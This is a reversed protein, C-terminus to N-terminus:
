RGALYPFEEQAVPTVPVSSVTPIPQDNPTNLDEISLPKPVTVDDNLHGYLSRQTAVELSEPQTNLGHTLQTHQPTHIPNNQSGQTLAKLLGGRQSLPRNNESTKLPPTVTTTRSDNFQQILRPDAHQQGSTYQGNKYQPARPPLGNQTRIITQGTPYSAHQRQTDLNHRYAVPKVRKQEPIAERVVQRKPHKSLSSLQEAISQAQTTPRPATPKQQVKPRSQSPQPTTQVRRTSAPQQIAQPATPRGIRTTRVGASIIQSNGTYNIITTQNASIGIPSQIPDVALSNFECIGHTQRPNAKVFNWGRCAADGNCQSDCANHNTAQIAAYPNGPRYTGIDAALAFPSIISVSFLLTLATKVRTM